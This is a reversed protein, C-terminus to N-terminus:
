VARKLTGVVNSSATAVVAHLSRQQGLKLLFFGAEEFALLESAYLDLHTM